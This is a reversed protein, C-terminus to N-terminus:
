SFRKQIINENQNIAILYKIFRAPVENLDDEFEHIIAINRSMFKGERKIDKPLQEGETILLSLEELIEIRPDDSGKGVNFATKFRDWNRVQIFLKLRSGQWQIGYSEIHENIISIPYHLFSNGHTNGLSGIKDELPLSNQIRRYLSNNKNPLWDNVLHQVFAMRYRQFIGKLKIEYLLRDLNPINIKETEKISFYEVIVKLNVLYKRWLKFLGLEDSANISDNSSTVNKNSEEIVRGLLELVEKTYTINSFSKFHKAGEVRRIELEEPFLSVVIGAKAEPNNNTYKQIQKVWGNKHKTYNIGTKFKSEILVTAGAEQAFLDISNKELEYSSNEQNILESGSWLGHKQLEPNSSKACFELLLKLMGIHFKEKDTLHISTFPHQTLNQLATLVNQEIVAPKNM